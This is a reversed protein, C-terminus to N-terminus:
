KVDNCTIWAVSRYSSIHMVTTNSLYKDLYAYGSSPLSKVGYKWADHGPCATADVVSVGNFSSCKAHPGTDELPCCSPNPRLPSFYLYSSADGIVIRVNSPANGVDSAWAYRNLFQAGASFGTLVIRKINPFQSRNSLTHVISDICYFSSTYRAPQPSANAGISGM